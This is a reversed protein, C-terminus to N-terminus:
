MIVIYSCIFLLEAPSFVDCASSSFFPLLFPLCMSASCCLVQDALLACNALPASARCFKEFVPFGSKFSEAMHEPVVAFALREVTAKDVQIDIQQERTFVVPTSSHSIERPLLLPLVCCCDCFLAFCFFLFFCMM